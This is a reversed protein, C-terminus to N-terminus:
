AKARPTTCANCHKTRHHETIDQETSYRETIYQLKHRTEFSFKLHEPLVQLCCSINQRTNDHETIDQRTNYQALCSMSGAFAVLKNKRYGSPVYCLSHM